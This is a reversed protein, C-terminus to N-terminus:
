AVKWNKPVLVDFKITEASINFERPEKQFEVSYDDLASCLGSAYHARARAYAFPDSRDARAHAQCAAQVAGPKTRFYAARRTTLEQCEAITLDPSHRPSM